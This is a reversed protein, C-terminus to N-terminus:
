LYPSFLWFFADRVRVPLSRRRLEQADLCKSATRVHDFHQTLTGALKQDYVEMVLEFNLKLSRADMNASGIQSYASDIVFLKTHCFPPPQYYVRVGYRLLEGLVNRTAWHVFPLNNRAPLIIQVDVGRLAAAQLEALLEAPPLFYPTMMLIHHQAASVAAQLVLSLHDDDENPGAPIARCIALPTLEKDAHSPSFPPVSWASRSSYNWDEVFVDLLQNLVAGSVQFQIDSAANWRPLAGLEHRRGINMGGTFGINGDVLLLKRHNRLNLHLSPPVLRLPNFIAVDIGQRRLVPTMRHWSYREGVGDILVRVEVGRARARSLADVFRQGVDDNDFIYTALAIWRQASDIAALMAPYAQEGNHLALIRNGDLLPLGTVVDATHAIQVLSEPLWSCTPRASNRADIAHATGVTQSKRREPSIARARTQLRNIGFLFYLTPGAFPFLWCVAIWGWASRPERKTLLAHGAAYLAIGAWLTLLVASWSWSPLSTDVDSM